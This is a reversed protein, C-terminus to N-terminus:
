ADLLECTVNYSLDEIYDTQQRDSPDDAMEFYHFHIAKVARNDTGVPKNLAAQLADLDAMATEVLDKWADVDDRTNVKSDITFKCLVRVMRVGTEVPMDAHPSSGEAYVIMNPITAKEVAGHGELVQLTPIGLISSLYGTLAKEAKRSIPLSM